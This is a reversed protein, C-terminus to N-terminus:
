CLYEGIDSARYSLCVQTDYIVYPYTPYTPSIPYSPTCPTCHYLTTLPIPYTTIYPILPYLAHSHSYYTVKEIIVM